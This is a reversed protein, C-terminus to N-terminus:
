SRGKCPTRPFSSHLELSSHKIQTHLTTTSTPQPILGVKSRSDNTDHPVVVCDRVFDIFFVRSLVAEVELHLRM